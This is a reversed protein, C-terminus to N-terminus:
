TEDDCKGKFETSFQKFDIVQLQLNHEDARASLDGIVGAALSSMGVSSKFCTYVSGSRNYFLYYDEHEEFDTIGSSLRWSNSGLYGGYWSGIIRYRVDDEVTTKVIAWRDPTYM